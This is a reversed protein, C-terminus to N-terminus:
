LFVGRGNHRRDFHRNAARELVPVRPHTKAWGCKCEMGTATVKAVGMGTEDWTSPDSTPKQFGQM